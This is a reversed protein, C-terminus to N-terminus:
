TECVCNFGVSKYGSNWSFNIGNQVSALLLDLFQWSGVVISFPQQEQRTGLSILKKLVILQPISDINYSAITDRVLMDHRCSNSIFVHYPRHAKYIKSKYQAWCSPFPFEFFIFIFIVQLRLISRVAISPVKFVYKPPLMIYATALLVLTFCTKWTAASLAPSSLYRASPRSYLAAYRNKSVWRIISYGGSMQIYFTYLAHNSRHINNLELNCCKSLFVIFHM